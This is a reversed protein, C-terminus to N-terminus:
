PVCRDQGLLSVDEDKQNQWHKGDQIDKVLILVTNASTVNMGSARRLLFGVIKERERRRAIHVAAGSDEVQNTGWLTTM